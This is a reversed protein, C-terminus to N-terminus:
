VCRSTYLLWASINACAAGKVGKITYEVRGDPLITIAIEQSQM